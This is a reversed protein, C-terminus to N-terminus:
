ALDLDVVTRSSIPLQEIVKAAISPVSEPVQQQNQFSM